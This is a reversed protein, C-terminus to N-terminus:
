CTSNEKRMVGHDCSCYIGVLLELKKMSCPCKISELRSSSPFTAVIEMECDLIELNNLTISLELSLEPLWQLVDCYHLHWPSLRLFERLMQLCNECYRGHFFRRDPYVNDVVKVMLWPNERPICCVQLPWVFCSSMARMRNLLCALRYILNEVEGNKKRLAIRYSKKLQIFRWCFQVIKSALCRKPANFITLVFIQEIFSPVCQLHDFYETQIMRCEILLQIPYESLRM